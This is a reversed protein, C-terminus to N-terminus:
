KKYAMDNKMFEAAFINSFVTEDEVAELEHWDGAGLVVPQSNKDMILEFNEKTIKLKGAYVVTAHSYAHDHRPLGEGNNAHFVNVQTGDYEFAHAPRLGIVNSM